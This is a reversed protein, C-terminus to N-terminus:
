QSLNNFSQCAAGQNYKAAETQPLDKAFSNVDQFTEDLEKCYIKNSQM